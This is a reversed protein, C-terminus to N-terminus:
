LLSTLTVGCAWEAHWLRRPALPGVGLGVTFAAAQGVVLSSGLPASIATTVGGAYASYLQRGSCGVSGAFRVIFCMHSLRLPAGPRFFPSLVDLLTRVIVFVYGLLIGDAASVTSQADYGGGAYGDQTQIEQEIEVLGLETGALVGGKMRDVRMCTTTLSDGRCVPDAVPDM